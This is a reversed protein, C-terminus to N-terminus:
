SSLGKKVAADQKRVLDLFVDNPTPNGLTCDSEFDVVARGEIFVAESIEMQKSPDAAAGAVMFGNSGIDIPQLAGTIKKALEDRMAPIMPAAGAADPYVAITDVFTRKGDPNKFTQGVGTLGGPNAIPPGDVFASPGVDGPTILLSSYDTQGISPSASAASSSSAAPSSSATSSSSSTSTAPTGKDSGCAVLAGSVLMAAATLGVASTRVVTM